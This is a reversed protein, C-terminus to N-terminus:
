RKSIMIMVEMEKQKNNREEFIIQAGYLGMCMASWRDKRNSTSFFKVYISGNIPRNQINLIEMRTEESELLLKEEESTLDVKRSEDTQMSYMHLWHKQTFTKIAMGMNHNIEATAKIGYILAAGNIIKSMQEENNMDILPPYWKEEQEDYYDKALEDALGVGLGNTDMFIRITQPFKKLTNRVTKAQKEFKEGNMSVTYVLDCEIHDKFWHLKFVNLISNDGGNVRAVDLSMIYEFGSVGSIEVHELDSCAILDQYTIWAGDILKPFIGEYEMQFKENSLKQKQQLIFSEKFLKCRVGVQWPLTLTFFETNDPQMMNATWDCFTKYLHNFRYNATSTMVLKNARESDTEKGVEYDAQVILMPILVNEIIDQPVYAAEDVLALNLRAGRIKAAANQGSGVGVPFAEIFSGNYFIIKAKANNCVFDKEEGAIFSSWRCFEDKYKEQILLKGQRFSPAIIGAKTGSYLLCYIVVCLMSIFTKGLGRCMVYCVYNYRFFGRMMIKQYLNLKIGCVDECFEDPRQRFYDVAERFIGQKLAMQGSIHSKKAM